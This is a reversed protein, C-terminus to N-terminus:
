QTGMLIYNSANKMIKLYELNKLVKLNKQFLKFRIL